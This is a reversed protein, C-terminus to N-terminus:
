ADTNSQTVYYLTVGLLRADGPLTDGADTAARSIELCLTANETPVAAPSLNATEPSRYLANAIGGTDTVAVSTGFSADMPAADAMALLRLGWVVNFNAAATGHCWTVVLTVAQRNWSKPMQLLVQAYEPTAPDFDLTRLVMRNGPLETTSPAAGATLRPTFAAAPIWVTQRGAGVQAAVIRQAVAQVPHRALIEHEPTVPAAGVAAIANAMFAPVTVRNSANAESADVFPITDAAAGGTPDAPLLALDITSGIGLTARAAAPDPDDLLSAAFASVAQFPLQTAVKCEYGSGDATIGLLQGARAPDPEPLFTGQLPTGASLLPARSLKEDISQMQAVMRDLQMEIAEASFAGSPLLDLEQVLQTDLSITIRTGAPPAVPFVITGASPLPPGEWAFDAGLTKLDDVLTGPARLFVRLDGLSWVRGPAQFRTTQGDGAYAMRAATSLVTM